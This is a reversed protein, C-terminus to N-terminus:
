GYLRLLFRPPLGAFYLTMLFLNRIPRLLYGGRRYRAASTVAASNLLTLRARGIKRVIDVDEFLPLPSFGGGQGYFEKSIGLGQDGYPLGFVKCRWAVLWEIRRAASIEDDLAFRFAGARRANGVDGIFARVEQAWGEELVTDGHLFILWCGASAEAGAALQGGRGRPASIVTAGAKEAVSVTDDQSGGDVIVVQEVWPKVCSIAAGVTANADLTPIVATAPLV